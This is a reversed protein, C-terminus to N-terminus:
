RLVFSEKVCRETSRPGRIHESVIPDPPQTVHIATDTVVGGRIRQPERDAVLHMVQRCVIVFRILNAIALALCAGSIGYRPVLVFAALLAIVTGIVEGNLVQRGAGVAFLFACGTIAGYNFLSSFALIQVASTVTQYFSGAGYVLALVYEPAFSLLCFILVTPPIGFLIFPWAALWSARYGGGFARAASQPIINCLGALFPNNVNVINLAAQFAAANAPGSAAALLWPLMQLRVTSAVNSTLYWKGLTWFDKATACVLLPRDWRIALQAFQIIAALLSTAMMVLLATPLSLDVQTSVV